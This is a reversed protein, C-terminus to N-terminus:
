TGLIKLYHFRKFYKFRKRQQEITANGNGLHEIRITDAPLKERENPHIWKGEFKEMGQNPDCSLLTVFIIFLLSFSKFVKLSKM